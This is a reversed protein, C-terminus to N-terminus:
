QTPHGPAVVPALVQTEGVLSKARRHSLHAAPLGPFINGHAQHASAPARDADGRGRGHVTPCWRVPARFVWIQTKLAIITMLAADMCIPPEARTEKIQEM